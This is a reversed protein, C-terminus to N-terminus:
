ETIERMSTSMSRQRPLQSATMKSFDGTFHGKIVSGIFSIGEFDVSNESVTIQGETLQWQNGYIYDYTNLYSSLALYFASGNLMFNEDDRLGAWATGVEESNSFTFTGTPLITEDDVIIYLVAVPQITNGSYKMKSTSILDIEIVKNGNTLKGAYGWRATEYTLNAVAEPVQEYEPYTDPVPTATIGGFTIDNGGKTGNVVPVEEANLVENTAADTVFIVVSSNDAKWAANWDVDYQKEFVHAVSDGLYNTVYQRVVNTHIFDQWGEWTYLYDAQAGHLGSEKILVTLKFQRDDAPSSGNAKITLKSQSAEYKASASIHVESTDITESTFQSLYYPHIVQDNHSGDEDVYSWKQRNLMISPASNIKFRSALSKSARITYEDDAYGAHNSVWIYRSEKGKIATAILEMGYPCYGCAEGTFHEILQKRTNSEVKQGPTEDEPSNQPKCGTFVLAIAAILLLSKTLTTKM